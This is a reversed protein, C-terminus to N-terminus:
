CGYAMLVQLEGVKASGLDFHIVKSKGNWCSADFPNIADRLECNQKEQGSQQNLDSALRKNATMSPAKRIHFAPQVSSWAELLPAATKPSVGEVILVLEPTKDDAGDQFLSERRGGFRNIYSLTDESADGLGHYQSAGLRQAFILRAQEPTLFPPRSISPSNDRQFIYVSADSLATAARALIPLLLSTSLKM